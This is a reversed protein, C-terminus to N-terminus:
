YEWLDQEFNLLETAIRDQEKKIDEYTNAYDPIWRNYMNGEGVIYSTYLRKQFFEDYTVRKTENRNPIAYQMALYPRLLDFPVWFMISENLAGMVQTSDTITIRESYLPAIAIIKTHLRSTHKDFFVVEQTLYKVQNRVLSEYPYFNFSFEDEISDYHVVMDNSSSIDLDPDGDLPNGQLFMGPIVKKAAPEQKFDPKITGTQKEFIPMGDIVADTIVKFLNRYDPDDSLVPFYLQFNQKFRMDIIRYVYRAWIVDDIRHNIMVVTDHASSFEETTIRASGYEDLFQTPIHQAQATTIGLVFCAIISLKKIM